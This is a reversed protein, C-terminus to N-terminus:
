TTVELDLEASASALEARMSQISAKLTKQETEGTGDAAAKELSQNISGELTKMKVAIDVKKKLKVKMQRRREKLAKVNDENDESKESSEILADLSKIENVHGTLVLVGSSRRRLISDVGRQFRKKETKKMLSKLDNLAGPEAHLFDQAHTIGLSALREVVQSGLGVRVNEFWRVLGQPAAAHGSNARKLKPRKVAEPVRMSLRQIASLKQAMLKQLDKEELKKLQNLKKEMKKKKSKSKSTGFTEDWEDESSSEDSSSAEDLDIDAYEKSTAGTIAQYVIMAIYVLCMMGFSGDILIPLWKTRYGPRGRDEKHEETNQLITSLYKLTTFIFSASQLVFLAYIRHPQLYNLLTCSLICITVCFIAASTPGPFFVTFGILTMKRLLCMILWAEAGLRSNSYLFGFKQAVDPTHLRKRYKILRSIAYGPFGFSFAGLLIFVLVAFSEYEPARKAAELDNFTCELSYDGKNFRRGAIDTCSFYFFLKQTIPAHMVFLLYLVVAAHTSYIRGMQATFIWRSGLVDELKGDEAAQIISRRTLVFEANGHDHDVLRQQDASMEIGLALDNEIAMTGKRHRHKLHAVKGFKNQNAQLKRAGLAMGVKRLRWLRKGRATSQGGLKRMMQFVKTPALQARRQRGQQGPGGFKIVELLKRFEFEDMYGDLNYDVSDFVFEIASAAELMYRMEQEDVFEDDENGDDDEDGNDTNSEDDNEDVGEEANKKKEKKKKMKMAKKKQKDSKKQRLKMQDRQDRSSEPRKTKGHLMRVRTSASTFSIFLATGVTLPIFAYVLITHQLSWSSPVTCDLRMLSVLNLNFVEFFTMFKLYIPPWPIAILVIISNGVQFYSLMENILGMSLNLLKKQKNGSMRKHLFYGSAGIFLVATFFIVM